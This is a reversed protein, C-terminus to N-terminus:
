QKMKVKQSYIENVRLYRHGWDEKAGCFRDTTMDTVPRLIPRERPRGSLEELQIQEERMAKM